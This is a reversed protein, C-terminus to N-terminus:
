IQDIIRKYGAREDLLNESTSYFQRSVEDYNKYVDNFKVSLKDMDELNVYFEKLGNDIFFSSVKPRYSIGISPTGNLIALINTHLRGGIVFNADRLLKVIAELRRDNFITVKRKILVALQESAWLDDHEEDDNIQMPLLTISFKDEPLENILDAIRSILKPFNEKPSPISWLVSIVISFKEAKTPLSHRTTKNYPVNIAIDPLLETNSLQMVAVSRKERMVIKTAMRASLRSLWLSFGRLDGIGCGIYYIKKGSLKLLINLIVMKYLLQRPTKTGYLEVWLDGGWYVVKKLKFFLKIKTLVDSANTTSITRFSSRVEEPLLSEHASNIYIEYDEFLHAACITFVDDGANGRGYAGLILIPGKSTKSSKM